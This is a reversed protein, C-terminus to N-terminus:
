FLVKETWSHSIRGNQKKSFATIPSLTAGPEQPKDGGVVLWSGGKWRTNKCKKTTSILRIMIIISAAQTTEKYM